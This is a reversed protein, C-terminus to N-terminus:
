PKYQEVTGDAGKYYRGPILDAKSMGPRIPIASEANKGKPKYGIKAPKSGFGFFGDEAPELIAFDGALEAEGVAQEIAEPFTLGKGDAIIVKARGVINDTMNDLAIREPTDKDPKVGGLVKVNNLISSFATDRESATPATSINPGSVKEKRANERRREELNARGLEELAKYRAASAKANEDARTQGRETMALTAQQYTSLAKAKAMNIWDPSYPISELQAMNDPGLIEKISDPLQAWFLKLENDNEVDGLGEWVHKGAVIMNDLRVKAQDDKAKDADVIKKQLEIGGEIFEKGRKTAGARLYREGIASFVAAPDDSVEGLSIGGDTPVGNGKGISDLAGAAWKDIERDEAVRAEEAEAIATQSALADRNAMSNLTRQATEIGELGIRSLDVPM